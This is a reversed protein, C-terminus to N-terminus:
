LLRVAAGVGQGPDASFGQPVARVRDRALDQDRDQDRDVLLHALLLAARHRDPMSIRVAVAAAVEATPRHSIKTTSVAMAAAGTIAAIM